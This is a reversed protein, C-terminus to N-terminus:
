ETKKFAQSMYIYMGILSLCISKCKGYAIIKLAEKLRYVSSMIYRPGRPRFTGMDYAQAAGLIIIEETAAGLWGSLKTSLGCSLLVSVTM